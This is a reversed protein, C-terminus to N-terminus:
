ASATGVTARQEPQLVSIVAWGNPRSAGRRAADDEDVLGGTRLLQQLALM